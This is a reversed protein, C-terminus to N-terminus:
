GTTWTHGRGFREGPTDHDVVIVRLLPFSEVAVVDSRRLERFVALVTDVEAHALWHRVLAAPIVVVAM